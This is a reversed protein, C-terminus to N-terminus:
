FWEGSELVIRSFDKSRDLCPARSEELLFHSPYRPEVGDLNNRWFSSFSEWGRCLHALWLEWRSFLSELWGGGTIFVRLKLLENGEDAILDAVKCAASASLQVDLQM